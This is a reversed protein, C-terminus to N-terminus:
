CSPTARPIAEELVEESELSGEDVNLLLRAYAPQMSMELSGVEIFLEYNFPGSVPLVFDHRTGGTPQSVIRVSQWVGYSLRTGRMIDLWDHSKAGIPREYTIPGGHEQWPYANGDRPMPLGIDMTQKGSPSIARMLRLKGYCRPVVQGTPNEVRLRLWVSDSSASPSLEGHLRLKPTTLLRLQDLTEDLSPQIPTTATKQTPSLPQRPSNRDAYKRVNRDGASKAARGGLYWAVWVILAALLFSLVWVIVSSLIQIVSIISQAIM